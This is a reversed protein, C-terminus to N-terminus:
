IEEPPIKFLPLPKMEYKGTDLLQEHEEVLKNREEAFADYHVRYILVMSNKQYIDDVLEQMMENKKFQPHEYAFDIVQQMVENAASDYRDILASTLERKKAYRIRKLKDVMDTLEQFRKENFSGTYSVEQLLRKMFQLKEDDDAIMVNWAHNLSDTLTSYESSVSDFLVSEKQQSQDKDYRCSYVLIVLPILTIIKITNYMILEKSLLGFDSLTFYHYYKLCVSNVIFLLLNGYM